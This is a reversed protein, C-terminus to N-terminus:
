GKSVECMLCMINGESDRFEALWLDHTEMRAVLNPAAEFHVGRSQLQNYAANIDAVTFYIISSPHDLAATEPVALMLRVGGCDFFAMRPFSFLHKLKLLDRYFNTAREIDHATISIQGIASLEM